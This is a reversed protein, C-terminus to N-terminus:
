LGYMQQNLLQDYDRQSPKGMSHRDDKFGHSYNSHTKLKMNLSTSTTPAIRPLMSTRNGGERFRRKVDFIDEIYV